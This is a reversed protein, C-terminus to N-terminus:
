KLTKFEAADLDKAGRQLYLCFRDVIVWARKMCDVREPGSIYPTKGHRPDDAFLKISKIFSEEVALAQRLREWSKNDKSEGPQVFQQRISEVARYCFLGTDIPSRISERLDALANGLHQSKHILETVLEHFEVPRESATKELEPVDVGFVTQVGENNIASTIEVDYGRGTLYGYADV